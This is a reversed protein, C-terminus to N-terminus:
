LIRQAHIMADSRSTFDHLSVSYAKADVVGFRANRALLTRDRRVPGARRWERPRAFSRSTGPPRTRWESVTTGPNTDRIPAVRSAARASRDRYTLPINHLRTALFHLCFSCWCFFFLVVPSSVSRPLSHATSGDRGDCRQDACITRCGHVM